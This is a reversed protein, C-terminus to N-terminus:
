TREGTSWRPSPAGSRRQGGSDYGDDILRRLVEHTLLSPSYSVGHGAGSGVLGAIRFYDALPRLGVNRWGLRHFLDAILLALPNGDPAGSDSAFEGPKWRTFQSWIHGEEPVGFNNVRVRWMSPDHWSPLEVFSHRSWAAADAICIVDLLNWPRDVDESGTLLAADVNAIPQSNDAKWGSSHALLGFVIPSSLEDRLTGTVRPLRSKIFECTKAAAIVHAAKLTNKCEFVAAVGSSLYLKKDVLRQPYSETLLLLDVQPSAIGDPFLVRGKAVITFQPFWSRLLEAWNNEGEDGATGPDEASRAYIRAYEDAIQARDQDLFQLIEHRPGAIEADNAVAVPDCSTGSEGM